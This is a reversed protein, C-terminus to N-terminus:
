AVRYDVQTAYVHKKASADGYSQQMAVCAFAPFCRPERDGSTM